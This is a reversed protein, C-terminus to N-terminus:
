VLVAHMQTRVFAHLCQALCSPYTCASRIALWGAVRGMNPLLVMLLMVRNPPLNELCSVLVRAKSMLHTVCATITCKSNGPQVVASTRHHGLHFAISAQVCAMDAVECVVRWILSPLPAKVDHGVLGDRLISPNESAGGSFIM